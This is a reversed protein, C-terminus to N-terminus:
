FVSKEQRTDLDYVMLAGGTSECILEEMKDGDVDRLALRTGFFDTQWEINLTRANLVFGSNLVIEKEGDNDVDGVVMYETADFADASQYERLFKEGDMVLLKSDALLILEKAPDRDLQEIVLTSVSEFDNGTNEWVMQHTNTDFVFMRGATTIVVLDVFGDADIDDALVEKVPAGLSFTSWSPVFGPGKKKLVHVYGRVDGFAIYGHPISDATFAAMARFRAAFPEISFISDPPPTRPPSADPRAPYSLFVALLLLSAFSCRFLRTLSSCVRFTSEM